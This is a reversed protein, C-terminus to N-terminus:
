TSSLSDMGPSMRLATPEALEWALVVEDTKLEDAGWWLAMAGELLELLWTM